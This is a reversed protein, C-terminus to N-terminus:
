EDNTEVHSRSLLSSLLSADNDGKMQRVAVTSQYVLEKESLRRPPSKGALTVGRLEMAFVLDRM